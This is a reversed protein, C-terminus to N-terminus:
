AVRPAGAPPTHSEPLLSAIRTHAQDVTATKGPYDRPRFPAGFTLTARGPTLAPADRPFMREGGVQALPLVEVGEILLYRAAARLFPQLRGDRSRTGEPYLLVLYGEDMLRGCDAMTEFAVAALERPTLTDQESAVASSQATKRTNLAISAMRRWPDTYVKPGAVAVLRDAVDAFGARVLVTDTVQTDTYSLHNCLVMRRQRPKALFAELHEGGLVESEAVVRNMFVRTIARSLPDAPHFRWADGAAAFTERMRTIAADDTQDLLAQLEVRLSERAADTDQLHQAVWAALGSRIMPTSLSALLEISLDM